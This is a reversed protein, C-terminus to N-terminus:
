FTREIKKLVPNNEAHEVRTSREAREAREVRRPAGGGVVGGM